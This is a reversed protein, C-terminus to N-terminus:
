ERIRLTKMKKFYISENKSSLQISTKDLKESINVIIELPENPNKQTLKEFHKFIEDEDFEILAEYYKNNKSFQYNLFRPLTKKQHKMKTFNDKYLSYEEANFFNFDMEPKTQGFDNVSIKWNFQKRYKNTWKGYPIPINQHVIKRFQTNDECKCTDNLVEIIEKENVIQEKYELAEKKIETAKFIEIEKTNPFSSVWIVVDGGPAIGVVIEDYTSNIRKNLERSFTYQYGKRFYASIKDKNIKTNLHYYKKELFSYWYIEISDPIVFGRLDEEILDSNGGCFYNNTGIGWNESYVGVDLDCSHYSAAKENIKFNSSLLKIPYGEPTSLGLDYEFKEFKKYTEIANFEEREYKSTIWLFYFCLAIFVFSTIILSYINKKFLFSILILFVFQIPIAIIILSIPIIENPLYGSNRVIQIQLLNFFIILNVFGVTTSLLFLKLYYKM